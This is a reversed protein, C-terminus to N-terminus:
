TKEKRKQDINNTLDSKQHQFKYFHLKIQKAFTLILLYSNTIWSKRQKGHSWSREEHNYFM